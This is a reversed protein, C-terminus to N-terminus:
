VLIGEFKVDTIKFSKLRSRNSAQDWTAGIIVLTGTDAFGQCTWKTTPDIDVYFFQGILKPNM